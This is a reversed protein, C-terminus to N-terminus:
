LCASLCVIVSMMAYARSTYIVDRALFYVVHKSSTRTTNDSPPRAAATQSSTVTCSPLTSSSGAAAATTQAVGASVCGGDEAASTTALRLSPTKILNRVNVPLEGCPVVDVRVQRCLCVPM